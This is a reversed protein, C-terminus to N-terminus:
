TSMGRTEAPALKEEYIPNCATPHYRIVVQAGEELVQRKYVDLHTYSVPICRFPPNVISINKVKTLTNTTPPKNQTTPWSSSALVMSVM